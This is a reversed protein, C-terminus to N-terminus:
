VKKFELYQGQSKDYLYFTRKDEDNTQDSLILTNENLAHLVFLKKNKMNDPNPIFMQFKSSKSKFLIERFLLDFFHTILFLLFLALLFEIITTKEPAKLVYHIVFSYYIGILGVTIPLLTISTIIIGKKSKYWKKHVSIGFIITIIFCVLGAFSIKTLFDISTLREALFPIESIFTLLGYLLFSVAMDVTITNLIRQQRTLFIKDFDTQSFMKFIALFSAIIFPLLPVIDNILENANM